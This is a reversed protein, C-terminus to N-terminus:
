ANSDASKRVLKPKKVPKPPEQGEVKDAEKLDEVVDEPAESLGAQEARARTLLAEIDQITRQSVDLSPPREKPGRGTLLWDPSVQPYAVIIRALRARSPKTEGEWLLRFGEGTIGLKKAASKKRQVEEDDTEFRNVIWRIRARWVRADPDQKDLRTQTSDLVM